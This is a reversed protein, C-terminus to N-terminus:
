RILLFTDLIGAGMGSLGVTAFFSAHEATSLMLWVVSLISGKEAGSLEGKEVDKTKFGNKGSSTYRSAKTTAVSPTETASGPNDSLYNKGASTTRGGSGSFIPHRTRLPRIACLRSPKRNEEFFKISAHLRYTDSRARRKNM